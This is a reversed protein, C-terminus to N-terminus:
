TYKCSQHTGGQGPHGQNGGSRQGGTGAAETAACGILVCVEGCVVAVAVIYGMYYGILECGM